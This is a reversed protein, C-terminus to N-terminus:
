SRKKDRYNNLIKELEKREKKKLGEDPVIFDEISGASDSDESYEESNIDDVENIRGWERCIQRAIHRCPCSCTKPTTDKFLNSKIPNGISPFNIRHRGCCSCNTLELPLCEIEKLNIIKNKLYDNPETDMLFSKFTM